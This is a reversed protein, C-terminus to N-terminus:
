HMLWYWYALPAALVITGLAFIVRRRTSLPKDGPAWSLAWATLVLIGFVVVAGTAHVAAGFWDARGDWESSVYVLGALMLGSVASVAGVLAYISAVLVRWLPRRPLQPRATM